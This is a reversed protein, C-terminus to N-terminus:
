LIKIFLSKESKEPPTWTQTLVQWCGGRSHGPFDYWLWSVATCQLCMQWEPCNEQYAVWEPSASFVVEILSSIVLIPSCSVFFVLLKFCSLRYAPISERYEIQIAPLITTLATNLLIGLRFHNSCLPFQRDWLLSWSNPCSEASETLTEM